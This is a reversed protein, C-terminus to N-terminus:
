KTYFDLLQKIARQCVPCFVNTRNSRMKCDNVPRYIGKAVYGGGEFVGLKDLYEETAPTPIPTDEDLMDKWKKGFDVLTTINKNYIEVSFDYLDEYAVASNFYEDGLAAFGHGFEHTFVERSQAHDSACINYSNFIGSGGYKPTNVLVFIQDYPVCAAIDRISHVDPSTLYREINFTYFHSNVNTSKWVNQGPIDTGSESSPAKVAWFNIKEKYQAFPEVDFTFAIFRKADEIFKNMEDETYGEPVFAIDLSKEPLSNGHIRLTDFNKVKEKSIFYDNPNIFTEFITKFQQNKLRVELKLKITNKPFPFIVTEAYTKNIKRAEATSQWEKFLNSFGRSYILNAQASDFVLLQYEGINFTDILNVKSGGWFPEQKIRNQFVISTDANGGIFYDFRLTKSEFYNEFEAQAFGTISIVVLLLSLTVTKSM